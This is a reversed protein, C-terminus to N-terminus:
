KSDWTKCMIYLMPQLNVNQQICQNIVPLHLTRLRQHTSKNKDISIKNVNTYNTIQTYKSQSQAKM